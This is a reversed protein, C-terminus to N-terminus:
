YDFKSMAEDLVPDIWKAYIRTTSSDSHAMLKAVTDLHIGRTIAQTGFTHRSVHFSIRKNVGARKAIIKLDANLYATASSIAKLVEKENTVSPHLKIASFIFNVKRPELRNLYKELIVKARKPLRIKQIKGNKRMKYHLYEGDYSDSTLLLLDAIRIGAAYCAFVFMDRHLAMKSGETLELHEIAALEEELLFGRSSEESPMSVNAFPNADPSLLGDKKALNIIARICRLNSNITNPRNSLKSKLYTKYNNLFDSTVDILRLQKKGLYESLKNIATQYRRYTAYNIGDDSDSDFRSQVVSKAYKLFDEKGGGSFAEKLDKATFPIRHDEFRLAIAQMESIKEGLIKNMRTSNPHNREVKQKEENWENTHLYYGTSIYFTKRDKTIKLYLPGKGTIKSIKNSRMKLSITYAM